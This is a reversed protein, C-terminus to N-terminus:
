VIKKRMQFILLLFFPAGVLSTVVGLKLEVLSPVLRVAIDSGLLLIAGGLASAGLLRGPRYGVLPRMLHPVILGVFGISGCVAVSAGVALATGLVVRARLRRLSIGLSSATTEGLSLAELARGDWLLLGWGALVFPLILVVHRFSRDALSGMQWFVIDLVAYPDKVLNLMLSTGAFAIVNIAVGALILTQVSALTGAFLYLLLVSVFAGAIGGVPLMMPFVTVLGTYFVAVAGLAAGGTVGLIGPEALPNRLFGQMAAGALGLTAGVLLGLVARPLRIDWFIFALDSSPDRIADWLSYKLTGLSLSGLFAAALLTGLVSYLLWGPVGDGSIGCRTHCDAGQSVPRPSRTDSRNM